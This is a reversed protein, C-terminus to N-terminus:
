SEIFVLKQHQSHQYKHVVNFGVAFDALALLAFQSAACESCLPKHLETFTMSYYTDESLM